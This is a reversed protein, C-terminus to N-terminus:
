TPPKTPRAEPEPAISVQETESVLTMQEVVSAALVALGLSSVKPPMTPANSPDHPFTPPVKVLTVTFLLPVALTELTRLPMTLAPLASELEVLASGLTFTVVLVQVSSTPLADSSAEKLSSTLRPTLYSPVVTLSVAPM